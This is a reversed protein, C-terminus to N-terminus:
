WSPEGLLSVTPPALPAQKELAPLFLGCLEAAATSGVAIKTATPDNAWNAQGKIYAGM